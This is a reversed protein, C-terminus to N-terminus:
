RQAQLGMQDYEFDELKVFADKTSGNISDASFSLYAEGIFYDMYFLNDMGLEPGFDPPGLIDKIESFVMGVKVGLVEQGLGLIVSAAVKNELPEPSCFQLFGKKQQFLIYYHPGFLESYGEEDPKGLVQKIEYFSKGLLNMVPDDIMMSEDIKIDVTNIDVTSIGTAEVEQLYSDASSEGRQYGFGFTLISISLIMFLLGKSFKFLNM